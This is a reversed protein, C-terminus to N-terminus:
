DDAIQHKKKYDRKKQLTSSYKNFLCNLRKQLETNM